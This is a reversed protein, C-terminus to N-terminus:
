QLLRHGLLEFLDQITQMAHLGIGTLLQRVGCDARLGVHLGVGKLGDAHRRAQSQQYAKQRPTTLYPTAM